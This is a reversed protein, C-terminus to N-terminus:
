NQSFDPPTNLDNDLDDDFFDDNDFDDLLEGTLDMVHSSSTIEFWQLFELYNVKPFQSDENIYKSLEIRFIEQFNEHLEEEFSTELVIDSVLYVNFDTKTDLSIDNIDIQTAAWDWFKQKPIITIASYDTKPIFPINTSNINDLLTSADEESIGFQQTIIEKLEHTSMNNDKILKYEDNYPSIHLLDRLDLSKKNTTTPRTEFYANLEDVSIHPNSSASFLLNISGAAHAISAAWINIKGKSLPQSTHQGLENLIKNCIKAYAKSNLIEACFNDLLNKITQIKSLM